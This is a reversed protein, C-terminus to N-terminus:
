WRPRALLYSSLGQSRPQTETEEKQITQIRGQPQIKACSSLKRNWYRKGRFSCPNLLSTWALIYTAYVHDSRLSLIRSRALQQLSFCFPQLWNHGWNHASTGPDLPTPERRIGHEQASMKNKCHRDGDLHIFGPPLGVISKCRMCPPLLFVGLSKFVFEFQSTKSEVQNLFKFPLRKRVQWVCLLSIIFIKSVEDERGM